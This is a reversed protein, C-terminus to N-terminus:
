VSGIPRQDHCTKIAEEDSHSTKALFTIRDYVEAVSLACAISTLTISAGPRSEESLVWPLGNQQRAYCEIRRRSQTVLVYERLSEIKRYHAFKEGRDYAETSESLVEIILTPNTLTDQHADDFHPEGCVVVVDPYTYLGTPDVKVRMDASYTECPRGKLRSRLESAINLTIINHERTAGSMAFIEGSFYESKHEARRELALYEDPTFRPKPLSSM